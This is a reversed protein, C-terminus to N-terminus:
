ALSCNAQVTMRPCTSGPLSNSKIHTLSGNRPKILPTTDNSKQKLSELTSQLSLYSLSLSSQDTPLLQQHSARLHYHCSPLLLASKPHASHSLHHSLIVCTLLNNTFYGKNSLDNVAMESGISRLLSYNPLKGNEEM